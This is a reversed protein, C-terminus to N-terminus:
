SNATALLKGWESFMTKMMTKTREESGKAAEYAVATYAIFLGFQILSVWGYIVSILVLAILVEAVVPFVVGYLAPLIKDMHTYVKALLQAFQGTPTSIMSNHELEFLKAVVATSQEVQLQMKVDDVLLHTYPPVLRGVVNLVGIVAFAAYHGPSLDSSNVEENREAFAFALVPLSLAAALRVFQLALYKVFFVNYGNLGVTLHHVEWFLPWFRFPEPEPEAAAVAAADGSAPKEKKEEEETNPNTKGKEEADLADTMEVETLKAQSSGSPLTARTGQPQDRSNDHDDLLAADAGATDNSNVPM